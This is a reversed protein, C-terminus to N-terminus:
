RSGEKKVDLYEEKMKTSDHLIDQFLDSYHASIVEYQQMNEKLSDKLIQDEQEHLLTANQSVIEEKLEKLQSEYAMLQVIKRSLTSM